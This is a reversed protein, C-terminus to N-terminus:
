GFMVRQVPEAAARRRANAAWGQLVIAFNRHGHERFHRAQALYVRACHIEVDRGTGAPPVDAAVGLAPSRRDRSARKDATHPRTVETWRGSKPTVNITNPQACHIDLARATM